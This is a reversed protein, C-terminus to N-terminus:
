SNIVKFYYNDDLIIVENNISTKILISYFREPELGSMYVTFYNGQNDASLKTYTEDFDIVFENTDLDKIAYSSSLPLYSNVIYISSTQYVRTPYQPRVNVRFKQISGQNYIGKNNPFSVILASSTIFSQSNSGTNFSFDDWKFELQPPYITHTNSSFYKINPEVSQSSNFESNYGWKAILGYNSISGSQWLNVVDTININLDKNSNISYSQTFELPGNISGTFWTGGGPNSQKFSGTIYEPFTNTEWRTGGNFTRWSWSVGNETNSDDSEKGTGNVWDQALPYVYLISNNVIGTANAIFGKLNAQWKSGSIKTIINNIENQDFSILFRAVEASSIFIDTFNTKNYVELISDLGTNKNPDKSYLTTDRNPFLKYASM